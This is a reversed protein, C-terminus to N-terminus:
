EEMHRLGQGLSGSAQEWKEIENKCGIQFKRTYMGHRRKGYNTQKTQKKNKVIQKTGIM